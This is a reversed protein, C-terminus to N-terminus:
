LLCNITCISGTVYRKLRNEEDYKLTRLIKIMDYVENNFRQKNTTYFVVM